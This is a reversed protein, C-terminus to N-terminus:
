AAETAPAALLENLQEIRAVTTLIAPDHQLLLTRVDELDARLFNGGGARVVAWSVTWSIQIM